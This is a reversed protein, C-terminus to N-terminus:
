FNWFAVLQKLFVLADIEQSLVYFSNGKVLIHHFFAAQFFRFKLFSCDFYTFCNLDKMTLFLGQDM